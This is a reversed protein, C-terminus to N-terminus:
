LKSVLFIFGLALVALVACGGGNIGVERFVEEQSGCERCRYTTTGRWYYSNDDHMGIKCLFPKPM